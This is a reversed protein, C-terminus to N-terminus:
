FPIMCNMLRRLSSKKKDPKRSTKHNSKKGKDEKGIMMEGTFVQDGQLAMQRMMNSEPKFVM